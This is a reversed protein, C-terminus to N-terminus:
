LDAVFKDGQRSVFVKGSEEDDGHYTVRYCFQGGNTLGLFKISKFDAGKYGSSEVIQVLQTKDLSVLEKVVDATIM